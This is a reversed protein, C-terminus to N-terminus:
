PLRWSAARREHAPPISRRLEDLDDKIEQSIKQFKIKVADLVQSSLLKQNRHIIEKAKEIVPPKNALYLM